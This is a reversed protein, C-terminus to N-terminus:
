PVFETLMRLTEVKLGDEAMAKKGEESEMVTKWKDLDQIEVMLGRSNPNEPDYFTRAKLGYQAFMEHRSGPGKKWAKDWHNGDNVEHFIIMTAM